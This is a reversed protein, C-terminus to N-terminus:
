LICDFKTGLSSLDFSRLDCKLYAPPTNTKRIVEDKLRILEKLKPYEEFRETVGVDRIFNQPRQGTDIYNQCSDNNLTKEEIKVKKAPNPKSKEVRETEGLSKGLAEEFNSPNEVNLQKALLKRRFKSNQM